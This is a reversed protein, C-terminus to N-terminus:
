QTLMQSSLNQLINHYFISQAFLSLYLTEPLVHPNDTDGMIWLQDSVRTQDLIFYILYVHTQSTGGM